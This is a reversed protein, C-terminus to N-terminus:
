KTKDITTVTFNDWTADVGQGWLRSRGADAPNGTGVPISVSLDPRDPHQYPFPDVEAILGHALGLSHIQGALNEGPGLAPYDGTFKVHQRDLPVGVDNVRTALKGDIRFEVANQKADYAISYHHTSGPSIAVQDVWDTYAKDLGVNPCGPPPTGGIAFTSVRAIITTAFHSSVFWDFAEGACGDTVSFAAAAQESELLRHSFNPTTPPSAPDTWTGGPGFIGHQVLGPITGPTTSSIDAAFEVSGHAPVPFQQTAIEFYKAHDFPGFDLGTRFPTARIHKVGGAVAVFHNADPPTLEGGFSFWQSANLTTFDDYLVTTTNPSVARGSAAFAVAVLAACAALLVL